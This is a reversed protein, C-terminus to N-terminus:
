VPSGGSCINWTLSDNSEASSANAKRTLCYFEGFFHNITIKFIHFLFFLNIENITYNLENNKRM